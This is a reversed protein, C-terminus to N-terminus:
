ACSSRPKRCRSPLSWARWACISRPSITSRASPRSRSQLSRLVTTPPRAPLDLRPPAAEPVVLAEFKKPDMREMLHSFAAIQTGLLPVTADDFSRIPAGLLKETAEALRPLVPTLYVVIQRFLNLVVSSVDQVDKARAPDKQAEM